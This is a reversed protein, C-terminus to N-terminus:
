YKMYKSYNAQYGGQVSKYILKIKSNTRILKMINFLKSIDYYVIILLM